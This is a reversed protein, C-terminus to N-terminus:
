ASALDAPHAPTDGSCATKLNVGGIEISDAM